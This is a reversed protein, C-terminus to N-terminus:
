GVEGAESHSSDGKSGDATSCLHLGSSFHPSLWCRHLLTPARCSLEQAVSAASWRTQVKWTGGWKTDASARTGGGLRVRMLHLAPRLGAHLGLLGPAGRSAGPCTTLGTVQSTASQCLCGPPGARGPGGSGGGSAWGLGGSSESLVANGVNLGFMLGSRVAEM